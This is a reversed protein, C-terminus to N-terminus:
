RAISTVASETASMTERWSRSWLQLLVTGALGFALWTLFTGIAGPWFFAALASGLWPIGALVCTVLLLLIWRGLGARIARFNSRIPHQVDDAVAILLYPSMALVILGPVIWLALGIVAAITLGAAYVFLPVFRSRAKVLTARWSCEGTSGLQLAIVVIAIFAVIAGFSILAQPWIWWTLPPSPNNVVLLTQIFANAVVVPLAISWAAGMNTARSDFSTM